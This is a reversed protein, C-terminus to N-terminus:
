LFWVLPAPLNKQSRMFKKSARRMGRAEKQATMLDINTSQSQNTLPQIYCLIKNTTVASVITDFSEISHKLNSAKSADSSTGSEIHTLASHAAKFHEIFAWVTKGRSGWCTESMLPIGGIKRKKSARTEENEQPDEQLM